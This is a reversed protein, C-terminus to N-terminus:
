MISRISKLIGKHAAQIHGTEITVYQWQPCRISTSFMQLYVPCLFNSTTIRANELINQKKKKESYFRM